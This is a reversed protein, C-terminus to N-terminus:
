DIGLLVVGVDLVTWWVFCGRLILLELVYFVVKCLYFLYKIILLFMLILNLLWKKKKVIYLVYVYVIIVNFLDNM